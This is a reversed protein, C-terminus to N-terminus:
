GGMKKVESAMGARLAALGGGTLIAMLFRYAQDDIYGAAQMAPVVVMGIAVIYTKYGSLLDLLHKM